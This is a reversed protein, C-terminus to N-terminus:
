LQEIIVRGNVGALGIATAASPANLTYTANQCYSKGGPASTNAVYPTNGGIWGAGGGPYSAHPRGGAGFAGQGFGQKAPAANGPRAPNNTLFYMGEGHWSNQRGTAFYLGAGANLGNTGATLSQQSQQLGTLVTPEYTGNYSAVSSGGGGGGACLLPFGFYQQTCQPHPNANSVMGNRHVSTYGGGGGGFIGGHGVQIILVDGISLQFTSTLNAAPAGTTLNNVGGAGAGGVATIRYSGTCPVIWAQYGQAFAYPFPVLYNVQEPASYASSIQAWTPGYQGSAGCSTFTATFQTYLPTVHRMYVMGSRIARVRVSSEGEAFYNGSMPSIAASPSTSALCYSTGAGGGRNAVYSNTGLNDTYGSDGISADGGVWGGGGGGKESVSTILGGHGGGGFGGSAGASIGGGLGDAWGQTSVDFSQGWGAGAASSGAGSKDQGYASAVGTTTTFYYAWKGASTAESLATLAGSNYTKGGGGGGAVLIPLTTNAEDVICTMGGGGRGPNAYQTPAVGKFDDGTQGIAVILKQNRAFTFPGTLIAGNGGFSHVGTGTDGSSSGPAGAAIVTYVGTKPVTWRQYGPKNSYLSWNNPYFTQTTVLSSLQSPGVQDSYTAPPSTFNSLAPGTSGTVNSSTFTFANFEFLPPRCTFTTDGFGYTNTATVTLTFDTVVQSSVTFAIYYDSQYIVSVGTPLTTYSWTIGTGRTNKVKITQSSPNTEIVQASLDILLPSGAALPAVNTADIMINTVAVGFSNTATVTINTSDIVSGQAVTFVISTDSQSALTMGTPLTSATWIIGVGRGNLVTVTQSSTATPLTQPGLATLLPSVGAQLSVVTNSSGFRNTATVTINTSAIVAGLAVTFMAVTDSQSTLTLGIPLTSTTWTIGAGRGNQITVTRSSVATDLALPGLATLLPSVGAQLSVVTNSSGFRNTATVTFNTSAIVAGQAVTFMAVTDSQSTLTLGTPLTSTTWTIGAGRGNQITVTRSSVATDLALPGLATLLPSVGAQLSVVTNSSGFSNTATVTINTSAIVSGQAVTFVISTDSQSALTLGAPLTSTTWTIGTGGLNQVALSPSNSTNLVQSTLEFLQPAQAPIYINVTFQVLMHGLGYTNDNDFNTGSNTPIREACGIGLVVIDSPYYPVSLEDALLCMSQSRICGRTVPDLVCMVGRWNSAVSGYKNTEFLLPTTVSGAAIKQDFHFKITYVSGIYADLYAYGYAYGGSVGFLSPEVFAGIKPTGTHSGGTIVMVKGNVTLWSGSVISFTSNTLIPTYSVRFSSTGLPLVSKVDIVEFGFRDLYQIQPTLQIYSPTDITKNMPMFYGLEDWRKTVVNSGDFPIQDGRELPIPNKPQKWLFSPKSPYGVTYYIYEAHMDQVSWGLLRAMGEIRSEGALVRQIIAGVFRPDIREGIFHFWVVGFYRIINNMISYHRYYALHLDLFVMDGSDLHLLPDNKPPYRKDIICRSYQSLREHWWSPAGGDGPQITAAMFMHMIEHCLSAMNTSIFTGTRGVMFGGAYNSQTYPTMDNSSLGPITPTQPSAAYITYKYKDLQEYKWNAEGLGLTIFLLTYFTESLNLYDEPTSTTAGTYFHPSDWNFAGIMFPHGGSVTVICQSPSSAAAYSAIGSGVSSVTSVSLGTMVSYQVASVSGVGSPPGITQYTIETSSTVTITTGVQAYNTGSATITFNSYTGNQLCHGALVADGPHSTISIIATNGTGAIVTCGSTDVNYTVASIAGTGIPVAGTMYTFQTTSVSTIHTGAKQDFNTGTVSVTPGIFSGGRTGWFIVFNTSEAKFLPYRRVTPFYPDEGVRGITSYTPAIIEPLALYSGTLQWSDTAKYDPRSWGASVKINSTATGVNNTATVTITDSLVTGQPIKLVISSDALSASFDGTYTWTIGTGGTQNFRISKSTSLTYLEQNGPSVLVPLINAGLSTTVSASGYMNTATVAINTSALITGRAISFALSSDTRSTESMGTPLPTTYAWTIGTGRTNLFTVPQASSTTDIVQPALATVLPGVGSTITVPTSDVGIENTAVVTIVASSLITGQAITLNVSTETQDTLTVGVPLAPSSWTIGTGRTNSITVTRSSTTTNRTQTGSLATLLPSIGSRVTVPTDNSGFENTAIVTITVTSLVTGQAITVKVSTDTQETLTVGALPPDYSWTIGTGRGNQITVTQATVSTDRIQTGTPASMLPSPGASVVIVTSNSGFENAATVTINQLSLVTGQAITVNVYTDTPNTLSVGAIPPDYSWVVGTGRTNQVTVSPSTSTTNLVQPGLSMVAVPSAGARFNVSVSDKGVNNTATVKLTASSLVAGQTVLFFLASDTQGTEIVGAPLPTYTWTIGTGGMQGFTIPQAMSGTDLVQDGPNTLVPALNAGLSLTLPTASGFTNTATITVPTPAVVVGPAFTFTVGADSQTSPLGTVGWTVGSGGTQKITISQGALVVLADPAVLVPRAEIVQPTVTPLGDLLLRDNSEIFRSFVELEHLSYTGGGGVTLTNDSEGALVGSGTSSVFTGNVFLFEDKHVVSTRVGSTVATNGVAGTQTPKATSADISFVRGGKTLVAGGSTNTIMYRLTGITQAGAGDLQKGASFAVAGSTWSPQKTADTQTLDRGNGSQDYWKTVLAPSSGLWTAVNPGIVPTVALNGLEDAYFDQTPGPNDGNLIWSAINILTRSNVTSSGLTQAVMRYWAYESTQSLTFTVGAQVSSTGTRTDVTTWTAGLDNSGAIVFTTPNRTQWWNDDQRGIIRYSRLVIKTPLEIQIWNGNVSSGSILTSTVPSGQYAGSNLNYSSTSEEFYTSTSNDFMNWAQRNGAAADFSASAKYTGNGYAQGTLTTSAGTMAAPPWQVIPRSQLQVAPGTYEKNLKRLGYAGTASVQSSRSVTDLVAPTQTFRPPTSTYPYRVIVIGSGGSGGNLPDVNGDAGGGGSGTNATAAVGSASLTRAGGPGGAAYVRSTGSISSAYGTGGPTRVGNDAANQGPGMAGGGGGGSAFGGIAGNSSGGANGLGITKSSAGGSGYRGGGGGSGGEGVVGSNSSGGFGGGKARFAGFVSDGGNSAIVFPSAVSGGGGAGVTVTMSSPVVNVSTTTFLEGAGGGGATQAATQSGGGGGGGVVLVEVTGPSEVTFTGSSTFTHIRYGGVDSITGGTARVGGGAALIKETRGPAMTYLALVESAALTRQYVRLDDLECSAGGGSRMNGSLYTSAYTTASFSSSSALTGNIYLSVLGASVTVTVNYWTDLNVSQIPPIQFIGSAPSYVVSVKSAATVYMYIVALSPNSGRFEVFNLEYGPLTKFKVWTSCTFGQRELYTVPFSNTYTISQGNNVVVSKGGNIGASSYTVGASASPLLGMQGIKDTLDGDLPVRAMPSMYSSALSLVTTAGGTVYTPVGPGFPAMGPTFTATPVTGGKTIRLDALTLNASSGIVPPYASSFTSATYGSGISSGVVGNLFVYVAGATTISVAVHYWTGTTVATQHNVDSSQGSTGFSTGSLRMHYNRSAVNAPDFLGFIIQTGSVSAFNVWAEVFTNSTKGDFNSAHGTGLNVYSGATGPLSLASNPAPARLLLATTGSSHVTLPTTPVTYTATIYPLTTANQVLRLNSIPTNQSTGISLGRGSAFAPTPGRTRSTTQGNLSAYITSNTYNWSFAYHNWSDLNYQQPSNLYQTVDSTDKYRMAIRQGASPGNIYIVFDAQTRGFMDPNGSTVPIYIWFEVFSNSTSSFFDPNTKADTSPLTITGMFSGESSGAFPSAASALLGSTYQQVVLPSPSLDQPVHVTALPARLLLATTGSPFIGVPATPPTFTATYPLTTANQVLRFNSMLMGAELIGVDVSDTTVYATPRPNGTGFTNALVSGNTSTYVTRATPNWSMSFHNWANLNYQSGTMFADTGTVPNKFNLFVARSTSSPNFALSFDTVAGTKRTIIRPYGGVSAPVYVWCEMFSNSSASFFDFNLKSVTSAFTINPPVMSGETSGTFGPPTSTSAALTGLSVASPSLDQAVPTGTVPTNVMTTRLLIATTGSSFVGVPATPVAFDSTYPLTTAGTVVRLNSVQLPENQFGTIWTYGGVQYFDGPDHSLTVSNVKGNVSIYLTRTASDWSASFHNWASVTFLETSNLDQSPRSSSNPLPYRFFVTRNSARISFQTQAIFQGRPSPGMVHIYPNSTLTPTIYVWSEVFSKQSYFNFETKPTNTISPLGSTGCLLSGEATTTSAFPSGTSATFGAYTAVPLPSPSMDQAVPVIQNYTVAASGLVPAISTGTPVTQLGSSYLWAIEAPTVARKYVRFDALDCIAGYNGGESDGAGLRFYTTLTTGIPTYAASSTRAGNIYLSLMGNSFQCTVHYWRDIVYGPTYRSEMWNGNGDYYSAFFSGDGRYIFFFLSGGSGRFNFIIRDSITSAKQNVRVWTSVTFGTDLSISGPYTYQIYSSSSTDTNKISVSNGSGRGSDWNIPCTGTVTAVVNGTVSKVDTDFPMWAFLDGGTGVLASPARSVQTAVLLYRVIVIGSGGAGGAYATTANGSSGSGGSGTNALASAGVAATNRIGGTGGAAYVLSTGSMSSTYGPGGPTRLSTDTIQVSSVSTGVGGAGGGGAADPAAGGLSAGGNNGLGSASKVSLGAAGSGTTNRGSGGGSGGSGGGNLSASNVGRGGYGGGLASVTDFRSLSGNTAPTVKDTLGGAGGAGIVITKAGPSVGFQNQVILEGAGGGGGPFASADNDSGGGGGGGAVVLVDVQGGATVTFTGSSTFTHIRYGGIDAVTNGGTAFVM